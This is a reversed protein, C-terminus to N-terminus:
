CMDSLGVGAETEVKWARTIVNFSDNRMVTQEIHGGEGKETGKHHDEIRRTERNLVKVYMEDRNMNWEDKRETTKTFPRDDKNCARESKEIEQKIM